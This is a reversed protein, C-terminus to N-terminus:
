ENEDETEPESTAFFAGQTKNRIIIGQKLTRDLVRAGDRIEHIENNQKMLQKLAEEEMMNQPSIALAVIGDDSVVIQVQM